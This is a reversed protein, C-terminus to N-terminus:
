LGKVKYVTGLNNTGGDFTTGFVTGSPTFTLTGTAKGPLVAVKKRPEGAAFAYLSTTRNNIYFHVGDAGKAVEGANLTGISGIAEVAGAKYRFVYSSNTWIDDYTQGWMYEHAADYVLSGYARGGVPGQGPFECLTTITGAPSVQLIGGFGSSGGASAVFYFNGDDGELPAGKPNTLGDETMSAIVTIEGTNTMRFFEGYGYAGHQLAVGYLCGDRGLTLTSVFNDSFTPLQTFQGDLSVRFLTTATYSSNIESGYLAGDSGQTLTGVPTYGAGGRPFSYVTSVVGAPTVRFVTGHNGAGGASTVGYFSGDNALILGGYPQTGTDQTMSALTVVRVQHGSVVPDSRADAAASAATSGLCLAVAALATRVAFRGIHFGNM